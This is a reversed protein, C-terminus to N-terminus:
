FFMTTPIDRVEKDVVRIFYGKLELDKVLAVWYSNKGEGGGGSRGDISLSSHAVSIVQLTAM